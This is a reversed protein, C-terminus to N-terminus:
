VWRASKMFLPGNSFAGAKEKLAQKIGRLFNSRHIGAKRPDSFETDEMLYAKSLAGSVLTDLYRDLIISPVACASYSLGLTARIEIASPIDCQPAPHLHIDFPPNFFYSRGRQHSYDDTRVDFRDDGCQVQSIRLPIIGDKTEMRYTDVCAQADLYFVGEVLNTESMFETCARMMFYRRGPADLAPLYPRIHEQIDDASVLRGSHECNCTM